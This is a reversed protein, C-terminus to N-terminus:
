EQTLAWARVPDSVNHLRLEGLDVISQVFGAADTPAEPFTARFAPRADHNGLMLTVPWPLNRLAEKLRAYEEPLGHHTLDGMLILCDADPHVGAAHHLGAQLRALPDLGIITEGEPTMHLDTMLLIKAM